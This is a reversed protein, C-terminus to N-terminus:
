MPSVNENTFIEFLDFVYVILFELRMKRRQGIYVRRRITSETGSAILKLLKFVENLMKKKWIMERIYPCM